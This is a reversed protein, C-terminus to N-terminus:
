RPRGPGPALRALYTTRPGTNLEGLMACHRPSAKSRSVASAPDNGDGFVIARTPCVAQCATVVDGDVLPTGTVESRQRAGAIRQVCYSCKEMLGRQRVSVEPNRQAKLTEATSDAYQLFNFRRVKYPCNNACFRTGICRNYVQVNLGESDHQTAGTPCVLECPARECHMCPVPLFVTDGADGSEFRDVRIWHMVRGDAVEAKGVVPISNEAQCAVTCANCGICADLDISMAWAHAPYPVPPYLSPQATGPDSIAAGPEVTRALERDHQSTERQVVAFDHRRGTPQLTVPVPAGDLPRLPWADYGVGNGVRGAAWRGQGLTLTVADEAHRRQVWVPADVVHGGVQARAVDGTQLGLRGATLPGILLANDWTLQTFPQPLEQLWGLNAYCGDHVSPDAVFLAQLSHKAAASASAPSTAPLSPLSPLRPAPPQVPDFASGAVVGQRLSDRWFADFADDDAGPPPGGRQGGRRWHRRLLAHGNRLPDDALLALLEAASRSDYLPAIAPQLLTASGDHALADGWREQDHSLPLHWDCLAATEDAYLGAHASFGARGIATGLDLAAPTQLAPNAGLLLLTSVAGAHLAQALEALGGADAAADPPDILLLGRGVAGLRHNLALALAHGPASLGGCALLLADPGAARLAQLAAREFAQEAAGAGDGALPASLVGGGDGPLLASCLRQLLGEIRAPPLAIRADARAGFLGPAVEVALARPLRGAERGAARAASWDMAQRVAAPGDSFPDGSLSLVCAARDLRPLAALERGFALRSGAAAAGDRLPAHVIWRAGPHRQLLAALLARETPSTLAGTLVYLPRGHGGGSRAMHQRWATEFAGWSSTAMPPAAKRPSRGLRQRVVTSRDPDWLQLAAAQTMADTAGLSAPHLANGEIKIPRGQQTAVLVGIAHGDRLAASAYYLPLDGRGAEPLNVAAQIRPESPASCAGQALAASAAMWHLVGRRSVGPGSPLWHIPEPDAADPDDPTM